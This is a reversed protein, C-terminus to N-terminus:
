QSKGKHWDRLHEMNLRQLTEISKWVHELQRANESRDSELQTELNRVLTKLVGWALGAGFVMGAASLLFQVAIESDFLSSLGGLVVAGATGALTGIAETSHAQLSM